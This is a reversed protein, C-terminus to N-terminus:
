SLQLIQALHEYLTFLDSRQKSDPSYSPDRRVDSNIWGRRALIIKECATAMTSTQTILSLLPLLEEYTKTAEAISNHERYKIINCFPEPLCCLTTAGIAGRDLADIIHLGSLGSITATLGSSRERLASLLPGAPAQNVRVIDIEDLSDLLGDTEAAELPSIGPPYTYDLIVPVQAAHKFTRFLTIKLLLDPPLTRPPPAMFATVAGKGSLHVAQTPEANKLSVVVPIRGATQRTVTAVIVQMEPLTLRDSESNRDFLLLAGAGAKILHETLKELSELDPAGGQTFPTILSAIIGGLQRVM